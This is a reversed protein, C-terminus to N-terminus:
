SSLYSEIDRRMLTAVATGSLQDRYWAVTKSVADAAAWRPRWGLEAEARSSDVTLHIAEHVQSPDQRVHYAAGYGWVQVVLDIVTGVSVKQSPPPGFNWGIPALADEGHAREALLLYGCLPELVHQWPRISNPSRIEVSQGARFARIADPILRDAAWDGGGIVNGGRVVGIRAPHRNTGASPSFFSHAYSQVAIDAAAKSASYPDHGGLPDDEFFATGVERNLYVKDSTACICVACESARVAELVNVSGQVNDMFTTAPAVYSARVLPQAALHLVIEPKVQGFCDSLAPMDAINGVTSSALSSGAQGSLSGKLDPNKDFGHVQAGMAALWASVWSGKFGLHGTVLVTRNNWFKPDPM